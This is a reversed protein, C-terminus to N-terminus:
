RRLAIASLLEKLQKKEAASLCTLYILICVSAFWAVRLPLWIAFSSWLFIGYALPLSCIASLAGIKKWAIPFSFHRRALLYVAIPLLAYAIMTTVAAGVIGFMPVIVLNAGIKLVAISYFAYSLQFIKREYHLGAALINITGYILAGLMVLLIISVLLDNTESRILLPVVNGIFLSAGVLIIAGIMAFYSFMRTFLEKINSHTRYEMMMPSWIQAFPLIMIVNILTGIRFAASYIGVDSLSLFHEIIIRDSWDVLINAFSVFVTSLGFHLLRSFEEKKIRFSFATRRFLVLFIVTIVLQSIAIAAFPVTLDGPFFELLLITMGVGGLVSILSFTVSITSKRILRLYTFFYQNVFSIANGFLAWAVPGSYQDSGLLTTSVIKGGLFGLSIQALVGLGLILFATTFVARRDDELDYDFYSRPLASTIGLFFIAGSIVCAMQILSYIGFDNKSLSSTLIPLLILGVASQAVSGLGYIVSHRAAERIKSGVSPQCLESM